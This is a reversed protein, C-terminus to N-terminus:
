LKPKWEGSERMAALEPLEVEAYFCAAYQYKPLPVGNKTGLMARCRFITGVDRLLKADRKRDRQELLETSPSIALATRVDQMYATPHCATCIYGVSEDCSCQIPTVRNDYGKLVSDKAEIAVLLAANEGELKKIYALTEDDAYKSM